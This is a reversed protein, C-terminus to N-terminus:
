ELRLLRIAIPRDDLTARIVMARGERTYAGDLVRMPLQIHIEGDDGTTYVFRVVGDPTRAAGVHRGQYRYNEFYVRSWDSIAEAGPADTVEDTVEVVDWTGHVPSPRWWQDRMASFQVATMTFFAAFLAGKIAARGWRIPGHPRPAVDGGTFFAVLRRGGLAAVLYLDLVLLLSSLLKVPVGHTVNIVVINAMIPVLVCAGLLRTRAFCLLLAGVGQGAAVFMAYAFSYGFFRWTLQFGSLDRLPTDLELESPPGFQGGYIKAVVYTVLVGALIAAILGHGLGALWRDRRRDVGATWLAALALGVPISSALWLLKNTLFLRIGFGTYITAVLLALAVMFSVQLRDLLGLEGPRDIASQM